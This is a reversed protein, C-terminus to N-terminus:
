VHSNTWNPNLFFQLGPNKVQSFQNGPSKPLGTRSLNMPFYILPLAQEKQMPQLGWLGDASQIRKM